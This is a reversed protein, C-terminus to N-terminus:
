VALSSEMHRLIQLRVSRYHSVPPQLRYIEKARVLEGIGRSTINPDPCAEHITARYVQLPTYEPACYKATSSNTTGYTNEVHGFFGNSHELFRNLKWLGSKPQCCFSIKATCSSTRFNMTVRELTQSINVGKAIGLSATYARIFQECKWRSDFCVGVSQVIYIARTPRWTM